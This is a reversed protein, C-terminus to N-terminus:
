RHEVVAEGTEFLRNEEKEELESHEKKEKVV